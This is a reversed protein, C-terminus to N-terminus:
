SFSTIKHLSDLQAFETDFYDCGKFEALSTYILKKDNVRAAKRKGNYLVYRGIIETDPIAKEVVESVISSKEHISISESHKCEFLTAYRKYNDLIMFDIEFDKGGSRGELYYLTQDQQLSYSFDYVCMAEFLYGFIWHPLTEIDYIVCLMQYTISPNVVYTRFEKRLRYNEAKVIVGMMELSASVDLFDQKQIQTDPDIGFSDLMEYLTIRNESLVPVTEVLSDCIAKYLITYVIAKAYEFNLSEPMASVLNNIIANEVYWQMTKKTKILYDDFVGGHMLFEDCSQISDEKNFLRCYESYLFGTTQYMVARHILEGWQLAVLSLSETGTLIIRHKGGLTMSALTAAIRECDPFWTFEDLIIVKEQLGYLLDLIEDASINKKDEADAIVYVADLNKCAQLCGVTKGTGRLGSVIAVRAIKSDCYTRLQSVFDREQWSENIGYTESAEEIGLVQM